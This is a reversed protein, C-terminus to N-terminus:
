HGPSPPGLLIALPLAVIRPGLALPSSGAYLVLGVGAKEGFDELFREMPRVAKRDLRRSWKVEIPVLTREGRCLVLDIELGSHTRFFHLSIPKVALSLIRRLENAVWTEVFRGVMGSKELSTWGDLALLHAALGTDTFFLKPTKVLRKGINAHYPAVRMAQYTTELLGVHRRLTNLSIGLDRSLAAYNLLRGTNFAAAVLLRDFDHLDLIASIDRVDRELYTKRYSEFWRSRAANSKLLAAPPYGGRLILEPIGENKSRRHEDGLASLIEGSSAAEFFMEITGLPSVSGNMEAASFPHLEFLATRGALSESVGKMLLLNASGTLLFSGAKVGEDIVRKVSVLVEPARQVEDIIAPLRLGGVFSEPDHRAASLVSLDDLTYYALDKRQAAIAKVLTTKGVQRAGTITVAPFEELAELIAPTIHRPIM